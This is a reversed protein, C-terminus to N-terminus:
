NRGVHINSNKLGANKPSLFRRIFLNRRISQKICFPLSRMADGLSRLANNSGFRYSNWLGRHPMASHLKIGGWHLLPLARGHELGGHDWIRMLGDINYLRKFNGAWPDRSYDCFIDAFNCVRFESQSCLTNIVFQDTNRPNMQERNKICFETVSRIDDFSFLRPKSIWCGSNFGFCRGKAAFSTRIPGQQYVQNPHGGFHILDATGSEVLKFAATLDSLILIRADFYGFAMDTDWFSAFRRFWHHGTQSRGINLSQGLKDLAQLLDNTVIRGGEQRILKEAETFNDDFPILNIQALPM